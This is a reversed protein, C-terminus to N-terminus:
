RAVAYRDPGLLIRPERLIVQSAFANFSPTVNAQNQGPPEDCRGSAHGLGRTRLEASAWHVLPRLVCPSTPNSVADRRVIPSQTSQGAGCGFRRILLGTGGPVVRACRTGRRAARGVGQNTRRAGLVSFSSAIFGRTM